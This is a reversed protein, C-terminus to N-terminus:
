GEGPFVKMWTPPARRYDLHSRDVTVCLTVDSRMVAPPEMHVGAAALGEVEPCVQESGVM